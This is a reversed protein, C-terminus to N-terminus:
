DNIVISGLVNAGARRLRNLTSVADRCRTGRRSVVLYVADAQSALCTTEAQAPRVTGVLVFQYEERM